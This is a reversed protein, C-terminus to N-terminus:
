KRSGNIWNWLGNAFVYTCLIPLLHMGYKFAKGTMKFSGEAFKFYVQVFVLLSVILGLVLGYKAWKKNAQKEFFTSITLCIGMCIFVTFLAKPFTSLMKYKYFWIGLKGILNPNSILYADTIGLLILLIIQQKKFM